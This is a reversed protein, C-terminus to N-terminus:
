APVPSGPTKNVAELEKKRRYYWEPYVGKHSWYRRAAKLLVAKTVGVPPEPEAKSFQNFKKM